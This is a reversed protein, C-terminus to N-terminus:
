QHKHCPQKKKKIKKRAKPLIVVVVLAPQTTMMMMILLWLWCICKLSNSNNIKTKQCSYSTTENQEMKSTSHNKEIAANAIKSLLKIVSLQEFLYDLLPSLLSHCSIVVFVKECLWIYHLYDHSCIKTWVINIVVSCLMKIAVTWQWIM